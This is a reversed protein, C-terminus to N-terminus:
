QLGIRYSRRVGPLGGTLTGDDIWESIGTSPNTFAAGTAVNWTLLDNSYEVRYNKGTM